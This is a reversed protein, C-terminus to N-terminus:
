GLETRLEVTAFTPLVAARLAIAKANVDGEDPPVFDILAEVFARAPFRVRHLDPSVLALQAFSGLHQALRQPDGLERALMAQAADLESAPTGGKSQGQALRKQLEKQRKRDKKAM